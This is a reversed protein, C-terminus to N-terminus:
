AGIALLDHDAGAIERYFSPDVALVAAGMDLLDTIRDGVIVSGIVGPAEVEELVSLDADTIDLIEEVILGVSREGNSHVVVQIRDGRECRGAGVFSSLWMLPMIQGRYQVVERGGAIEVSDSPLDELRTVSSLPIATRGNEGLRVILLSEKEDVLLSAEDIENSKGRDASLVGATQALALADLILAVRGDGLITAGAYISIRKLQVSLPKVVIEETNLVQDVVLGFKQGDARLVAIYQPADSEVPELGLVQRCYVLPLLKDRLRYVPAGSIEEIRQQGDGGDLSVLEELSVQPLAYREGGCEIAVTPIIALTLPIKIKFTTGKGVTSLIDVTGGINEINTKVVDMGVGRGSVNSVQERTSFGPVFILDLMERTSMRALDAKSILGRDVAKSAIKEPDIGAGDDAVEITVQGGEHFARLTLTGEAPKGCALRVEPTEIGHDISNRVLHTLPDKIAELITKDLETDRGEMVLRAQRGCALGLDRVVRPLKSWVNDIPQMRTKMVGEQLESAILNLRQSTRLLNPEGHTDAYSVVQNRTLVLEGVLRMLSDLLDVDVRLTSDAISRRPDSQAELSHEAQAELADSSRTAPLSDSEILLEGFTPAVELEQRPEAVPMDTSLVVEGAKTQSRKSPAKKTKKPVRDTMLENIKAVLETHDPDGENGTAEITTLLSRIADVLELLVSTREPNLPLKGDRVLALLNEGAHTVSELHGFALFGSTGKITHVTRFISALMERSEPEQELAVLDRDLQDLNEHSEVLFEGVIEDLENM